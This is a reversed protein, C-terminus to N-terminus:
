EKVLTMIRAMSPLIEGQIPGCDVLEGDITMRGLNGNPGGLPELRFARVRVIQTSPDNITKGESMAMFLKLLRVRSVNARTFALFITGDNLRSEPAGISDQAIHTLYMALVLIFDDEVMTWNAPVPSSLPPLLTSSHGSSSPQEHSRDGTADNSRDAATANENYMSVSRDLRQDQNDSASKSM